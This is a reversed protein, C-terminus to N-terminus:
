TASDSTRLEARPVSQKPHQEGLHRIPLRGHDDQLGLVAPRQCAPAPMGLPEAGLRRLVWREVGTREAGASCPQPGSSCHDDFKARRIREVVLAEQELWLGRAALARVLTPADDLALDDPWTGHLGKSEVLDEWFSPV